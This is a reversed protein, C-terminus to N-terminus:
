WLWRPNAGGRGRGGVATERVGAPTSELRRSFHLILDRRPLDPDERPVHHLPRTAMHTNKFLIQQLFVSHHGLECRFICIIALIIIM